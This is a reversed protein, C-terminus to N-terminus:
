TAVDEEEKMKLTEFQALFTQLKDKKVKDDGEYISKLKDWVEEKKDQM